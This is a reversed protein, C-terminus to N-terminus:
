PLAFRRQFSERALTVGTPTLPVSKAKSKPNDFTKCARTLGHDDFANLYLLALVAEDIEETKLGAGGGARDGPEETEEAWVEDDENERFSFSSESAALWGLSEREAKRAEGEVAERIADGDLPSIVAVPEGRLTLVVREGNRVREVIEGTHQKLERARV